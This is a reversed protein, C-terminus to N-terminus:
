WERDRAREVDSLWMTKTDLSTRPDWLYTDWARKTESGVSLALLLDVVRHPGHRTNGGDKAASVLQNLLM